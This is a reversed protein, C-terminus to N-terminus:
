RPVISCRSASAGSKRASSSAWHRSRRRDHPWRGGCRRRHPGERHAAHEHGRHRLAHPRLARRGRHDGGVAAHRSRLARAARVRARGLLQHPLPACALWAVQCQAVALFPFADNSVDIDVLDAVVDRSRPGAIAVAAWQETVSAVHVDLEPWVAQLLYEFHQMVRVANVTTTTVLFHSEALRTVTGDDMVMGDDRLMVGYRSRGVGLTQWGNAYVRDLFAVVDRGAVEIKGLTSVDVVGANTRVNRAERNAADDESEGARPYSHPRLWLGGTVFRAGHAAHWAHMATRRTPALHAGQEGGAVAGLTVPAYPPRFTTTGVGAIPEDIAQALLALGIVNSTKGQDTGMGLTTYRKLHEVSVYGERAALAVDDATVDNQLDVFRKGVTSPVSWTPVLRGVDIDGAAAGVARIPLPCRDPVFTALREDYRLTGRAQSFLHVAPNWGGSM